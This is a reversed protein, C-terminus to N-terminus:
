HNAQRYRGRIELREGVLEARAVDAAAIVLLGNDHVGLPTVEIRLVERRASAAALAVMGIFGVMLALHHHHSILSMLCLGLVSIMYVMPTQRRVIM